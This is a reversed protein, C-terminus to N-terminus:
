PTLLKLAPFVTRFDRANRTLLGDRLEAFAGISVDAVPRRPLNGARKGIVYRHWAGHAVVTDTLIGEETWFVALNALFENQATADGDVVPGLEAYTVPCITLGGPRKADLLASSSVGFAPDSEAEDILLCTDM